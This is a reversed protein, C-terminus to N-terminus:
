GTHGCERIQVDVIIVEAPFQRLCHGTNRIHLSEMEVVIVSQASGRVILELVPQFTDPVGLPVGAGLANGGTEVRVERIISRMVATSFTRSSFSTIACLALETPPM